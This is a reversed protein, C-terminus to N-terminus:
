NGGDRVVRWQSGRRDDDNREFRYGGPLPVMRMRMLLATINQKKEWVSDGEKVYGAELAYALTDKVFIWNSGHREYFYRAMDAAQELKLGTEKKEKGM